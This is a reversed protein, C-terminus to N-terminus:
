MCLVTYRWIIEFINSAIFYNVTRSSFFIACRRGSEAGASTTFVNENFNFPVYRLAFNWLQVIGYHSELCISPLKQFTIIPNWRLSYYTKLFEHLSKATSIGSNIKKDFMKQKYLYICFKNLNYFLQQYTM